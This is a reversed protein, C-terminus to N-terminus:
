RLTMHKIDVRNGDPLFWGLGINQADNFPNEWHGSFYIASIIAFVTESPVDSSSVLNKIMGKTAHEVSDNILQCAPNPFSVPTIKFGVIDELTRLLEKPLNFNSNPWINNSTSVADNAESRIIEFLKQAYTDNGYPELTSQLAELMERQTEGSFLSVASAVAVFASFPSYVLNKTGDFPIQKLSKISFKILGIASVSDKISSM